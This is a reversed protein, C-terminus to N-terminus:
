RAPYRAVKGIPPPRFRCEDTNRRTPLPYLTPPSCVPSSVPRAPRGPFSVLASPREGPAYRGVLLLDGIACRSWPWTRVASNVFRIRGNRMMGMANQSKMISLFDWPCKSWRQSGVLCRRRAMADTPEVAGDSTPWGPTHGPRCRCSVGSRAVEHRASEPARPQRGDWRACPRRTTVNGPQAPDAEQCCGEQEGIM